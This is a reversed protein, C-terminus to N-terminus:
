KLKISLRVFLQHKFDKPSSKFFNEKSFERSEGSCQALANIQSKSLKKSWVNLQSLAGSFSQMKEFGYQFSIM